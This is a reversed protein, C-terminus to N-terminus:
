LLNLTFLRRFRSRAAPPDMSICPSFQKCGQDFFRMLLSNSETAEMPTAIMAMHGAAPIVNLCSPGINQHLYMSAPFPTVSDEKGVIILTPIDILPLIPRLDTPVFFNNFTNVWVYDPSQLGINILEEFLAAFGPQAMETFSFMAATLIELALRHNVVVLANFLAVVEPTLNSFVGAPWDPSSVVKPTGDFIVLQRAVGPFSVVYQMFVLSAMSHGILIPNTIGLTTLLTNLDDVAEALDYLRTVPKDSLGFGVMDYIVTPRNLSCFFPAQNRWIQHSWPFGHGFVLANEIPGDGWVEFYIQAGDTATVFGTRVACSGIPGCNMRACLTGMLSIMGILLYWTLRQSKM